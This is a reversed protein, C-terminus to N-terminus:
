SFYQFKKVKVMGRVLDVQRVQYLKSCAVVMMTSSKFVNKAGFGSLHYLLLILFCMIM